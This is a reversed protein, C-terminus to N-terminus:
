GGLPASHAPATTATNMPIKWMTGTGSYRAFAGYRPTINRSPPSAGNAAAMTITTGANGVPRRRSAMASIASAQARMITMPIM